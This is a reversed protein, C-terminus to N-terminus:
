FFFRENRLSEVGQRGLPDGKTSNESIWKQSVSRRSWDIRIKPPARASFVWNNTSTNWFPGLFAKKPSNKKEFIRM